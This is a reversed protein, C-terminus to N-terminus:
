LYSVSSHWIDDARKPVVSSRTIFLLQTPSSPLFALAPMFRMELESRLHMSVEFSDPAAQEISPQVL